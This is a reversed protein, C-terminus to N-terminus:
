RAALENAEGVHQDLVANSLQLDAITRAIRLVRAGATHKDDVAQTPRGARFAQAQAVRARVTASPEGPQVPAALDITPLTVTIDFAMRVAALRDRYWAISRGDCTCALKRHGSLSCPCPAVKAVVIPAAPFRVTGTARSLVVERERMVAPLGELTTRTFEGLDDLFLVGHHALSLEGPRPNATGGGYLGAASTSHHPARFPRKRALGAGTNLGAASRIRTVEIAEDKTLPPLVSTLRRALMTTGAGPPAVFLLSHGGAAAIEVARRDPSTAPVDALDLADATPTPHPPWSRPSCTTPVPELLEHMAERINRVALVDIGEVIAAEEANDTSVIIRRKGARQAAEAAALAGRVPRVDGSLSLEGLLMTEALRAEDIGRQAALIAIAIPLDLASAGDTVAPQLTVSVQGAPLEFGTNQIGAQVRVRTECLAADSLGTLTFGPLGATIGARVAVLKGDIGHLVSSTVTSSATATREVKHEQM